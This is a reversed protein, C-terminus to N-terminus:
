ASKGRKERMYEEQHKSSIFFWRRKYALTLFLMIILLIPAIYFLRNLNRQQKGRKAITTLEAIRADIAAARDPDYTKALEMLPLAAEIAEFRATTEGTTLLLDAVIPDNEKIFVM